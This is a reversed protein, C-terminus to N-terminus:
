SVCLDYMQVVTWSCLSCVFFHRSEPEAEALTSSSQKQNPKSCSPVCRRQRLDLICLMNFCTEVSCRGNQKQNQNSPYIQKSVEYGIVNSLQDTVDWEVLLSDCGVQRVEIIPVSVSSYLSDTVDSSLPSTQIPHPPGSSNICPYKPETRVTRTYSKSEQCIVTSKPM